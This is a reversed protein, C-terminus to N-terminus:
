CNVNTWGDLIELPLYNGDSLLYYHAKEDIIGVSLVIKGDTCDVNQIALADQM